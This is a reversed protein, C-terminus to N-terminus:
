GDAVIRATPPVILPLLIGNPGKQDDLLLLTKKTLLDSSRMRHMQLRRWPTAGKRTVSCSADVRASPFVHTSASHEDLM